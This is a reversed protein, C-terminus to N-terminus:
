ARYGREGRRYTAILVGSETRTADALDLGTPATGAPFMLKGTGRVVPLVILRYEDILDHGILTQILEGSGFVALYGDHQEKLARVRQLLGAAELVVTGAWHIDTPRLTSSVVYKPMRNMAAVAPESEDADPWIAAFEEYTRRGLLMGAAQVTAGSIARVVTEDLYPQIWDGYDFRGDLSMYNILILESM